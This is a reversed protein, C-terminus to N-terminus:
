SGAWTRCKAVGGDFCHLWLVAQPRPGTAATM